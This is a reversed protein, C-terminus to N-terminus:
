SCYLGSSKVATNCHQLQWGTGQSGMVSSRQFFTENKELALDMPLAAVNVTLHYLDRSQM